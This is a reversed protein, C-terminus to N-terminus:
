GKILKGDVVVTYDRSIPILQVHAVKGDKTGASPNDEIHAIGFGLGWNHVNDYSAGSCDVDMMHGMEWGQWMTGTLQFTKHWYSLRHSHGRILSVGFNEVDNRVSEGAHKSVSVGHHAHVGGWMHKPRALYDIYDINLDTFGWLAQPTVHEKIDPLKKDIYNWIRIDHNGLVSMIPIDAPSTDRVQQYFDKGQKANEFIKALAGDSTLDPPPPLTNIFEETGGENWRGYEPFDVVDGTLLVEDPKWQKMVKFWLALARKDEYPIQMDGGILVKKTM